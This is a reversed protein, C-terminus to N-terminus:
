SDSPDNGERGWTGHAGRRGPAPVPPARAVIKSSASGLAMKAHAHTRPGANYALLLRHNLRQNSTVPSAYAPGCRVLQMTVSTV